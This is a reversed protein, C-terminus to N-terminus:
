RALRRGRTVAALAALLAVAVLPARGPEPVAIILGGLGDSSINSAGIPALDVDYLTAGFAPGFGPIVTEGPLLAVTDYPSFTSFSGLHIPPTATGGLPDVLALGSLAVIALADFGPTADAVFASDVQSLNPVGTDFTFGTAGTALLSIAGLPADLSSELYLDWVAGTSAAYIHVEGASAAAPVLALSALLGALGALIGRRM